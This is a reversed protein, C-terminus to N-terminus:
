QWKPNMDKFVEFFWSLTAADKTAFLGMCIIESEGISNEIIVLFCAMRTELLKYTADIFLVEPCDEFSRKMVEDQLYIAELEKNENTLLRVTEKHKSELINVVDTLDNRENPGKKKAAINSLDKM